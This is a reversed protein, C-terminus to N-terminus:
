SAVLQVQRCFECGEVFLLSLSEAVFLQELDESVELLSHSACWLAQQHTTRQQETDVLGLQLGNRTTQHNVYHRLRWLALSTLQM